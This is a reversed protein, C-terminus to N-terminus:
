FPFFTSNSPSFIKEEVGLVLEKTFLLHAKKWYHLGLKDAMDLSPRHSDWSRNDLSQPCTQCCEYLLFEAVSQNDAYLPEVRFQDNVTLCIVCYGVVQNNANIAVMSKNCERGVMEKIMLTRDLGDCVTRDYQIVGDVNKETITTVSITTLDRTLRDFNPKGQFYLVSKLPDVSFERNKYKIYMPPDAILSINRESGIHGM